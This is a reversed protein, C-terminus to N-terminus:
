AADYEVMKYYHTKVLKVDDPHLVITIDDGSVAISGTVGESCRELKYTSSALHTYQLEGDIVVADPRALQYQDATISLWRYQPLTEQGELTSIPSSAYCVVGGNKDYYVRYLPIDPMRLPSIEREVARWMEVLTQLDIPTSPTSM